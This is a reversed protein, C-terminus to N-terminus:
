IRNLSRIICILKGFEYYRVYDVYHRAPFISDDIGYRGSWTDGPIGLKFNLIVNMSYDFPWGNQIGTGNNAYSFHFRGDVYFSLALQTWELTWTHWQTDNLLFTWAKGTKLRTSNKEVHLNVHAETKTGQIVEAIDIEGDGPWSFSKRDKFISIKLLLM